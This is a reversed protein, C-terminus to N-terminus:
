AATVAASKSSAKKALQAKVKDVLAQATIGHKKRLTGV